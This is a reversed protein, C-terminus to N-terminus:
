DWGKVRKKVLCILVLSVLISDFVFRIVAKSAQTNNMKNLEFLNDLWAIFVLASILGLTILWGEISIPTIGWGFKKPKFWYKPM